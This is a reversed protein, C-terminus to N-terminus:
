GQPASLTPDPNPDPPDLRFPPFSSISKVCSHHCPTRRVGPEERIHEQSQLCSGREVSYFAKSLCVRATLM